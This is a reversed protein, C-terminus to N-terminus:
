FRDLGPVRFGGWLHARRDSLPSIEQRCVRDWGSPTWRFTLITGEFPSRTDGTRYALRQRILGQPTDPRRKWGVETWVARDIMWSHGRGPAELLRLGDGRWTLARYFQIHAGQEDAVVIERGPRGDLQATGQWMSEHGWYDVDFKRSVIRTRETRVRVVIVHQRHHGRIALGVPDRDGDGDVDVRAKVHCREIGACVGLHVDDTRASPSAISSPALVAGGAALVVAAIVVGPAIM